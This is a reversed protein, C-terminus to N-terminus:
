RSVPRPAILDTPDRRGTPPVPWGRGVRLVAQPARTGGILHRLEDRTRPVEVVHSLFSTALGEATATLLVRQLAQGAQVDAAPGTGHGGLVVIFPDPEFDKGPVRRPRNGGTFDRLVWRDHPEAPTGAAAPVGDTADDARGTWRAFEARFAPDDVQARHARAAIERLATRQGPEDLVHLWGDEELAARHLAAQAPEPVPEDTFPHRNTRRRPVARLLREQEPTPPTRGGHRVTAILEPRDHDPLVTVLPRVGYGHLALRLNFLAAGCGIRLERDDPDAAPLRREPDAHLEIVDRDLRLRWPQANHLSPARGVTVLLSEVQEPRLGFAEPIDPM